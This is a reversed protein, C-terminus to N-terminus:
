KYKRALYIYIGLAAFLIGVFVSGFWLGLEAAQGLAIRM